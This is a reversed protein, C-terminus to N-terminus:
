CLLSLKMWLKQPYTLRSRRLDTTSKASPTTSFFYAIGFPQREHPALSSRTGSRGCAAQASRKGITSSPGGTPTSCATTDGAAIPVERGGNAASQRHHIVTPLQNAGKSGCRGTSGASDPRCTGIHLLGELPHTAVSLDEAKHM